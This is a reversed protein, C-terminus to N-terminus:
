KTLYFVSPSQAIVSDSAIRRLRILCPVSAAELMPTTWMAAGTEGVVVSLSDALLHWDTTVAAVGDKEIWELRMLGDVKSEWTVKYLTGQPINEESLPSLIKGSETTLLPANVKVDITDRQTTLGLTASIEVRYNGVEPFVIHTMLQNPGEIVAAGTSQDLLVRWRVALRPDDVRANVLQGELAYPQNVTASQTPNVTVQFGKPAIDTTMQGIPEPHATFTASAGKTDLKENVAFIKGDGRIFQASFQGPTVNELVFQSDLLAVQFPTGPLVIRGENEGVQDAHLVSAFRVLPEPSLTVDTNKVGGERGFSKAVPDYTFGIRSVGTKADSRFLLNFHLRGDSEVLDALRMTQSSRTAVTRKSMAGVERSSATGIRAFDEALLEIDSANEIQVQLLPQSDLAPNHTRAYVELRGKVALPQGNGNVFEVQMQSLGPNEVGTSGGECGMLAHTAIGVWSLIGLLAWKSMWRIPSTKAKGLRM